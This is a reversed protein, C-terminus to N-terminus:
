RSGDNPGVDVALFRPQTQSRAVVSHHSFQIQLGRPPLYAAASCSAGVSLKGCGTPDAGSSCDAPPPPPPAPPGPATGCTANIGLHKWTGPCPDATPSSLPKGDVKCGNNCEVTCTSKGVCASILLKKLDAGCKGQVLGHQCDGAVAGYTASTISAILHGPCSLQLATGQPELGCTVPPDEGPPLPAPDHSYLMYGTGDEDKFLSFDGIGANSGAYSPSRTSNGWRFTAGAEADVTVFPGFPSRSTAVAYSYHPVFNYWLVWLGTKDNFLARPSFLSTAPPRTHAPLVNGHATWSVLDASTYLNVSTNAEFGCGCDPGIPKGSCGACGNLGASEHCADYGAAFWYYTGNEHVIQGDHANVIQGATDTRPILNSVTAARGAPLVCSAALLLLVRSSCIVSCGGSQMAVVLKLQTSLVRRTV